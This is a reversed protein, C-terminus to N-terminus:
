ICGLGQFEFKEGGGFRLARVVPLLSHVAEEKGVIICVTICYVEKNGM